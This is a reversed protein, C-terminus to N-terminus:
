KVERDRETMGAFAPMWYDGVGSIGVGAVAYQIMRDLRIIVAFDEALPGIMM